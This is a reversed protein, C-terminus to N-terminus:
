VGKDDRSFYCLCGDRTFAVDVSPKRIGNEIKSYASRDIGIASAIQEQTLGTEKRAILLKNAMYIVERTHADYVCVIGCEWFTTIIKQPKTSKPCLLNFVLLTIYIRLFLLTVFSCM